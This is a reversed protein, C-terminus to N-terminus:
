MKSRDRFCKESSLIMYIGLWLVGIANFLEVV